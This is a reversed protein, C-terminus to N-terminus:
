FCKGVVRRLCDGVAIPRVGGGKKAIPILTATCLTERLGPPLPAALAWEAFRGITM